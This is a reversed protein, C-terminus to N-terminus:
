ASVAELRKKVAGLPMGLQRAIQLASKGEAALSDVTREGPAVVRANIFDDIASAPIRRRSGVMISRLEGSNIYTYITRRSTKLAKIAENVSLLQDAM